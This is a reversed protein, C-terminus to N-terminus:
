LVGWGSGGCVGCDNYEGFCGMCLFLFSKLYWKGNEIVEVRYEAFESNDNIGLYFICYSGTVAVSAIVRFESEIYGNLYRKEFTPHLLDNVELQTLIDAGKYERLINLVFGLLGAPTSAIM